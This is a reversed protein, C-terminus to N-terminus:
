LDRGWRTNITKQVPDCLGAFREFGVARMAAMAGIM